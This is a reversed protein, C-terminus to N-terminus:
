VCEVHTERDHGGGVLVDQDWAWTEGGVSCQEAIYATFNSLVFNEGVAFPFTVEFRHLLLDVLVGGEDQDHTNGKAVASFIPSVLKFWVLGELGHPLLM